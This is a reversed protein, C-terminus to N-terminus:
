SQVHAGAGIGLGVEGERGLRLARLSPLVGLAPFLYLSRGTATLVQIIM